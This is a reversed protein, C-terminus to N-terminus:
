IVFVNALQSSFDRTPNSGIAAIMFTYEHGSILNFLTIRTSPISVEYPDAGATIDIVRVVYGKANPIKKLLIYYQGSTYSGYRIFEVPPLMGAPTPDLSLEYGTALILTQQSLYSNGALINAAIIQNVYFNNTRLSDKLQQKIYNKNSTNEKGAGPGTALALAAVYNDIQGQLTVTSVPPTPFDAVSAALGDNIAQAYTALNTDTQKDFATNAKPFRTAM